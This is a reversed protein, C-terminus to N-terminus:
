LECGFSKLSARSQEAAMKCGQALGAKGQPTSAAQRWSDRWTKLTSTFQARAAEPIKGTVCAEYKTLFDDCEPVGIDGGTATTAPTSTTAPTMTTAPTTTTTAPSSTTTTTTKNASTQNAGNTTTETSGCGALLLACSLSLTLAAFLRKFM